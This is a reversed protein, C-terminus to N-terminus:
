TLPNGEWHVILYDSGAKMLEVARFVSYAPLQQRPERQQNAGGIEALVPGLATRQQLAM